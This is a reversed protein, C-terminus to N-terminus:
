LSINFDHSKSGCFGVYNNVASRATVQAFFSFLCDVTSPTTVFIRQLLYINFGVSGQKLAISVVYWNDRDITLFCEPM